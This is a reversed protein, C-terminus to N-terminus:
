GATSAAAREALEADYAARRAPDRLTRWAAEIERYEASGRRTRASLGTVQEAIRDLGAGRRVGLFSYWDEHLHIYTGPPPPTGEWARDYIARVHPNSLTETAARMQMRLRSADEPSYGAVRIEAALAAGAALVEGGSASVRLGLFEYWDPMREPQLAGRGSEPPKAEPRPEQAPATREGYTQRMKGGPAEPARPAPRQLRPREADYRRRAIPDNLVAYASNLEAMQRNAAPSPNHDPHVERSRLRYAQKVQAASASPDIGLTAYHDPPQNM